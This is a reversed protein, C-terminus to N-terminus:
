EKMANAFSSPIFTMPSILVLKKKQLHNQKYKAPTQGITKKFLSIFSSSSQLGVSFCVERKTLGDKLLQKAKEIRVKQLYQNPTYGYINKFTRLFHYKSFFAESTIDGLNINEAFSKDIFLKAQVIRM